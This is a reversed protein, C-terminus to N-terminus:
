LLPHSRKPPAQPRGAPQLSGQRGALRRCEGARRGPTRLRDRGAGAPPPLARAAAADVGGVAAVGGGDAPRPDAHVLLPELAQLPLVAGPVAAGGGPGGAAAALDVRALVAPPLVLRVGGRAARGDPAQAPVRRPGHRIAVLGQAAAPGRAGDARVAADGPV